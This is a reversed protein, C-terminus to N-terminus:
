LNDNIFDLLKQMSEKENDVELVLDPEILGIMQETIDCRNQLHDKYNIYKNKLREEQLKISIKLQILKFENNKLEIFEDALRADDIIVHDFNNSQKITYNIFVNSKIDRLAKGIQLLLSRNKCEEKEGFLEIAIKKIYEAFSLTYFKNPYKANIFDKLFTKGSGMPGCFAIKM